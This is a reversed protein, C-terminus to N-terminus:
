PQSPTPWAARTKIFGTEALAKRFLWLTAAGPMTHELGLGLFRVLHSGTASGTQSREDDLNYLMQLVLIKSM